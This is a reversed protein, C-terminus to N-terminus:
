YHPPKEEEATYPTGAAQSAFRASMDALQIRLAALDQQQQYVVDSLEVNAKELFAIKMEIQELSAM